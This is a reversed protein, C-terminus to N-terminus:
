KTISANCDSLGNHWGIPWQHKGFIQRLTGDNCFWKAWSKREALLKLQEVMEQENFCFSFNGQLSTFAEAFTVDLEDKSPHFVNGNDGSDPFPIPVPTALAKRIKKLINEKPTAAM